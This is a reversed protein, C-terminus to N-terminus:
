RGATGSFIRGLLVAARAGTVAPLNGPRGALRQSALWAFAAAEVWDPDIGFDQTTGVAIGPLHGALRQMLFRNHAGGGCVLLRATAPAYRHIDAAISAATLECLTAQVDQAPLPTDATRSMVWELNFYEPGTSKPPLRSFYDDQLLRELLPESIVGSAAFNGYEDMDAGLVQRAWADMLTNGPGNDFGTVRDVCTDPLITINAIGGINLVVRPEQNSAFVAHHFAPVLPAGQGGAEIDPRRFDAVVDIGTLQRILQPNGIQLTYPAPAEPEHRITQGHSGIATVNGAPVQAQELLANAAAAFARGVDDDLATLDAARPNDLQSAAALRHRLGAPYRFGRTALLVPRDTTCRLLAADIGDM